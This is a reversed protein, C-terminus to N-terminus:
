GLLFLLGLCALGLLWLLLCGFGFRWGSVWGSVGCFCVNCSWKVLWALLM